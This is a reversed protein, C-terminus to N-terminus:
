PESAAGDNCAYSASGAVMLVVPNWPFTLSNAIPLWLCANSNEVTFAIAPVKVFPTQFEVKPPVALLKILPEHSDWPKM